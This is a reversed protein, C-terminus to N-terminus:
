IPRRVRPKLQFEAVGDRTAEEISERQNAIKLLVDAHCTCGPKCWCALNRGRLATVIEDQTPPKGYVLEASRVSPDRALWRQYDRVADEATYDRYMGVRFPNGWRGPRSVKVTNEPM